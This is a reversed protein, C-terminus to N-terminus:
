KLSKYACPLLNFSGIFGYSSNSNENDDHCRKMDSKNVWFILPSWFVWLFYNEVTTKQHFPKIVISFLSFGFIPLTGFNHWLKKLNKFDRFYKFKAIMINIFFSEFANKFLEKSMM